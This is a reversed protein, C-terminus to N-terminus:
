PKQTVHLYENIFYSIDEQTLTEALPLSCDEVFKKIATHIASVTDMEYENDDVDDDTYEGDGDSYDDDEIEKEKETIVKTKMFEAEEEGKTKSAM